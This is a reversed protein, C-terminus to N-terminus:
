RNEANHFTITFNLHNESIGFENFCPFVLERLRKKLFEGNKRSKAQLIECQTVSGIANIEIKAVVQGFEPLDLNSQLIASVTEGYGPRAETAQGGSQIEISPPLRPAFRSPKLAKEPAGIADLSDVIQQLLNQDVVAAQHSEKGAKRMKQPTTKPAIAQKIEKAKVKIPAAQKSNAVVAPGSCIKMRVQIPRRVPPRHTAVHNILLMLILAAHFGLSVVGIQGFRSLSQFWIWIRRM